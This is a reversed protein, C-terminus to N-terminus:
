RSPICGALQELFIPPVIIQKITIWKQKYIHHNLLSFCVTRCELLPLNYSLLCLFAFLYFLPLPYFPPTVSGEGGLDGFECLFYPSNEASEAPEATFHNPFGMFM